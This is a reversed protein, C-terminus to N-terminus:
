GSPAPRRTRVSPKGARRAPRYLEAYPAFEDGPNGYRRVLELSERPVRSIRLGNPGVLLYDYKVPLFRLYHADVVRHGALYFDLVLSRDVAGLADPDLDAMIRRAFRHADHAPDNAHRVCAALTRIGSGPVLSAALLA